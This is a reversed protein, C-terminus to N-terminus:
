QETESTMTPTVGTVTVVTREALCNFHRCLLDERWKRLLYREDGFIPKGGDEDCQSGAMEVLNRGAM